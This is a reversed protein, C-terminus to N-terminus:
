NLRRVVPKPTWRLSRLCLIANGEFADKLSACREMRREVCRRLSTMDRLPSWLPQDIARRLRASQRNPEVLTESHPRCQVCRNKVGLAVWLSQYRVSRGGYNVYLHTLAPWPAARPLNSSRFWPQLDCPAFGSIVQHICRTLERKAVQTPGASPLV